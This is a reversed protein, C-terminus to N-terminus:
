PGETLQLDLPVRLAAADLWRLLLALARPAPDDTLEALAGCVEAFTAGAVLRSAIAAEDPDLTRHVVELDRRWVLVARPTAVAAPPPTADELASWVADVSWALPVVASAPVWALRLDAIAEPGLAAVHDRTLAPHDPGDFVEVRARELRALDGAWPPALACAADLYRALDLGLGRLTFSRPPRAAVYGAVLAAFAEAGLAAELKPHDQRLAELLRAGYAYAYIGLEGSAILGRPDGQGSVVLALFRAQLAALEAM